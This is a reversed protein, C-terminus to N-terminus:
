VNKAEEPIVPKVNEPMVPTNYGFFAGLREAFSVQEIKKVFAPIIGFIYWGECNFVKGHDTEVWYKYILM